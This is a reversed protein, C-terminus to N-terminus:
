RAPLVMLIVCWVAIFCFHICKPFACKFVVLLRYFTWSYVGGQRFLLHWLYKSSVLKLQPWSTCFPFLLFFFEMLPETGYTHWCAPPPPSRSSVVYKGNHIFYKGRLTAKLLAAISQLILKTFYLMKVINVFLLQRHHGLTGCHSFFCWNRAAGHGWKFGYWKVPCGCKSCALPPAFLQVCCLGAGSLIGSCFGWFLGQPPTWAPGKVSTSSLHYSCMLCFYAQCIATFFVALLTLELGDYGAFFVEIHCKPLIFLLRVENDLIVEVWNCILQLVNDWSSVLM